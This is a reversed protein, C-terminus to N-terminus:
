ETPGSEFSTGSPLRRSGSRAKSASIRSWKSSQARAARHALDPNEVTRRAMHDHLAAELARAEVDVLQGRAHIADEGLMAAVERLQAQLAGPVLAGVFQALAVQYDGEVVADAREDVARSVGLQGGAYRM